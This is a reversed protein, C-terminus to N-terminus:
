GRGARGHKVNHTNVEKGKLKIRCRNYSLDMPFILLTM